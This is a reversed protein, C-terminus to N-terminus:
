AAMAKLAKNAAPHAADADRKDEAKAASTWPVSFRRLCRRCWYSHGGAYAIDDHM